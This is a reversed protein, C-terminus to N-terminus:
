QSSIRRRDSWSTSGWDRLCPPSTACNPGPSRTGDQSPSMSRGDPALLSPLCTGEQGRVPPCATLGCPKRCTYAHNFGYHQPIFGVIQRMPVELKIRIPLKKGLHHDSGAPRHAVLVRFQRQNQASNRRDIWVENLQHARVA